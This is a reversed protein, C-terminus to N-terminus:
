AKLALSQIVTCVACCFDVHHAPETETFFGFLIGTNGWSDSWALGHHQTLGGSFSRTTGPSTHPVCKPVSQPMASRQLQSSGAAARCEECLAPPVTRTCCARQGDADVLRYRVQAALKAVSANLYPGYM